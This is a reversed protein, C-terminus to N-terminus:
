KGARRELAAQREVSQRGKGVRSVALGAVAGCVIVTILYPIWSLNGTMATGTETQLVRLVGLVLLVVGIGLGVSGALGFAVFRGLGKLPEVTEQRVYALVLDRLEEFLTPLGKDSSGRDAVRM